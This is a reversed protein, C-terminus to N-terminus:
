YCTVNGPVVKEKNFKWYVVPDTEGSVKCIITSNTNVVLHQNIPVEDFTIGEILAFNM